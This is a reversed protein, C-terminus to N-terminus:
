SQIFQNVVAEFRELTDRAKQYEQETLLVPNICEIRIQNSERDPIVIQLVDTHNLDLKLRERLREMFDDTGYVTKDKVGVYVVLIIKTDNM